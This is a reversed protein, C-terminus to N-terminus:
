KTIKTVIASQIKSKEIFDTKFENAENVTAFQGVSVRYWTAGKIQAPVYYASFGKGKLDGALKQAEIEKAYSAVQITFKGVNFQAPNKPLSTPIREEHSKDKKVNKEDSAAKGDESLRKAVTSPEAGSEANELKEAKESKTVKGSHKSENKEHGSSANKEVVKHQAGHHGSDGHAEGHGAEKAASEGHAEGHGAEKAASEGHASASHGGEAAKSPEKDDAVFEEALKAIEEDSLGETKPLVGQGVEEHGSKTGHEPASATESAKSNIEKETSHSSAETEKESEHKASGGPEMQSLQHQNDSFKKGVFTGVSFSLLSIFFILVLKVVADTKAGPGQSGSSHDVGQSNSGSM